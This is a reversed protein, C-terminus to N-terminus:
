RRGWSGGTQNDESLRDVIAHLMGESNIRIKEQLIPGLVEEIIPIGLKYEVSLMLVVQGDSEGVCWRGQFVDFDGEITEFIIERTSDNMQIHQVWEIPAGDIEADWRTTLENEKRTLVEISNVSPMYAPYDEVNKMMAYARRGVDNVDLSARPVLVTVSVSTLNSKPDNM